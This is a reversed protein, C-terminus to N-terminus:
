NKHLTVSIQHVAIDLDEIAQTIISAAESKQLAAAAVHVTFHDADEDYTVAANEYISLLKEEFGNLKEELDMLRNQQNVAEAINEETASEDTMEKMLDELKKSFYANREIQLNTIIDSASQNMVQQLVLEDTMQQAAGEGADATEPTEVTGAEQLTETSHEQASETPETVPPAEELNLEQLASPDLLGIGEVTVEHGTADVSAEGTIISEKPEDTFLYYASLVVMLGLMSVLWITQRKNNM